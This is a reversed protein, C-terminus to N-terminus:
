WATTGSFCAATERLINASLAPHSTDVGTDLIAVVAGQGTWGKSHAANAVMVERSSSLVPVNLQDEMVSEVEVMEIISDLESATVTMAIFPVYEFNQINNRKDSFIGVRQSNDRIMQFKDHFSDQVQKIELSVANLDNLYNRRLRSMQNSVVNNGSASKAGLPIQKFRALNQTRTKKKLSESTSKLKILVPLEGFRSEEIKKRLLKEDGDIYDLHHDAINDSYYQTIESEVQDDTQEYSFPNDSEFTKVGIIEAGFSSSIAFHTFYL